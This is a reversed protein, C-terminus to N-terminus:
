PKVWNEGNARLSFNRVRSLLYNRKKLFQPTIVYSPCELEKPVSLPETTTPPSHPGFTPGSGVGIRPVVSLGKENVKSDTRHRDLSFLRPYGQNSPTTRGEHGGCTNLRLHTPPFRDKRGGHVETEEGRERGTAEDRDQSESM